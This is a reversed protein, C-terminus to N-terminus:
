GHSFKGRELRGMEGKAERSLKRLPVQGCPVPHLLMNDETQMPGHWRPPTRACKLSSTSRAPRTHVRQPLPNQLRTPQSARQLNGKREEGAPSPVMGTSDLSMTGVHSPIWCPSLSRVMDQLSLIRRQFTSPRCPANSDCKICGTYRLETVSPIFSQAGELASRVTSEAPSCISLALLRRVVTISFFNVLPCPFRLSFHQNWCLQVMLFCM